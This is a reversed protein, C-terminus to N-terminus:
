LFEVLNKHLRNQFEQRDIPSQLLEELSIMVSAEFGCPKLGIFAKADKDLNIAAGHYTVWKRVAIGLSAIKRNEVWVGTEEAADIDVNKKQLSKGIAIVDYEALTKIIAQEFDRLFGVVEKEKRRPHPYALNVIPYIVIQSPGHYTARGGRSVEMTEGQWSFVDDQKTAKGLTVIPPHTCFILFGPSQSQAVQEVLETQQSLAKSYDILGWDLIELM